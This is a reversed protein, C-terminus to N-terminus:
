ICSKERNLFSMVAINHLDDNCLTHRPITLGTPVSTMGGVWWVMTSQKQSCLPTILNPLQPHEFQCDATLATAVSSAGLILYCSRTSVAHM